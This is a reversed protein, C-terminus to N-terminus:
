FLLNLSAYELNSIIPMDKLRLDKSYELFFPAPLIERRENTIITIIKENAIKVLAARANVTFSIALERCDMRCGECACAVVPPNL